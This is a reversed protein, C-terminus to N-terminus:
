NVSRAIEVYAVGNYVLTLTDNITANFVGALESVGASDSFDVTGGANSVIAVTWSEGEISGSEGITVTCGHVDANTFELYSATADITVAGPSGDGSDACNVAQPSTM